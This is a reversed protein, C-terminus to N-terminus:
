GKKVKVKGSALDDRRKKLSTILQPFSKERLFATLQENINTSYRNDEYSIDYVLWDAGKKTLFYDLTVVEGKATFRSVVHADNGKLEIKNFKYTTNDWFTDMRTYATHVVVDKLLNTFDARNKSSQKNWEAAGLCSKAIRDWDLSGELRKRAQNKTPSNVKSSDDFLAVMKSKIKLAEGTFATEAEAPKVASEGEATKAAPVEKAATAENDAIAVGLWFSILLALLKM